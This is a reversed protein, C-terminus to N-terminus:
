RPFGRLPNVDCGASKAPSLIQKNHRSASDLLASIFYEPNDVGILISNVSGLPESLKIRVNPNGTYNYRKVFKSRPVFENNREIKVINELPIVLPQYLGYRVFLKNCVLSIPRRSVARYEAIFFVLSFITLLTVINAALPSWIFHLVLHMIPMEFAILFIFGLLNSKAGDKQHYTFHQEGRFHESKIRNAFFAFTWMRTEFTLLSAVPSEGLYKKIPKEISLDPDESKGIAAKIALYVTLIAVLEFSLIVALVFYRGNELYHWILKSQEPIIYSGILVALCSLVVAKLLGEKKDKACFFCIIPLVILADLLFLWEFNASGYDNLKSNSQYYFGWWTSICVLFLFPLKSKISDNM